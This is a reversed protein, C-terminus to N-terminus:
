RNKENKQPEVHGVTKSNINHQSISKSQNCNGIYNLYALLGNVATFIIAAIAIILRWKKQNSDRFKGQLENCHAVNIKYSDPGIYICCGAGADHHVKNFELETWGKFITPIQETTFGPNFHHEDKEAYKLL